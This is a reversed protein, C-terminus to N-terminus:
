STRWFFISRGYRRIDNRTHDHINFGPCQGFRDLFVSWPRSSFYVKIKTSSTSRGSIDAVFDSIVEPPDEYEDLADLFLRLDLDLRNQNLFLMLAEQLDLLPWQNRRDPSKEAYM